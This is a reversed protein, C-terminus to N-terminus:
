TYQIQESISWLSNCTLLIENYNLDKQDVLLTNGETTASVSKEIRMERTQRKREREGYWLLAKETCSKRSVAASRVLVNGMPIM